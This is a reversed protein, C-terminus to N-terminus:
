ILLVRPNYLCKWPGWDLEFYTKGRQQCTQIIESILHFYVTKLPSRLDCLSMVPEPPFHDRNTDSPALHSSHAMMLAGLLSFLHVSWSVFIVAGPAPLAALGGGVLRVPLDLVREFVLFNRLNEGRRWRM